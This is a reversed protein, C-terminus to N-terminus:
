DIYVSEEYYSTEEVADDIDEVRMGHSQYGEVLCDYYSQSPPYLDSKDVMYYCWAEYEHGHKDYVPVLKRDYYFPYGELHDLEELCKDTIDWLVVEADEGISEDVDAHLRFVLRHNPLVASGMDIAAPCRTAMGAINTNMGYSVMYAM